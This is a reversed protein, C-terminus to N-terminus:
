KKTIKYETWAKDHEKEFSSYVKTKTDYKLLPINRSRPTDGDIYFHSKNDWYVKGLYNKDKSVEVSSIHGAIIDKYFSGTEAPYKWIFEDKETYNRWSKENSECIGAHVFIQNETEYYLQNKKSNLWDMLDSHYYKIQEALYKSILKDSRRLYYLEQFVKDQQKSDFFSPITIIYNEHNLWPMDSNPSHYWDLFMEEHNGILVVVQDPYKEKLSKIHYLVQCSEEGRDIYDGLFILKNEKESDLDVLSLTNLMEDYYGHIDSMAYITAM